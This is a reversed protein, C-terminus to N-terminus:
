AMNEKCSIEEVVLKMVGTVEVMKDPFEWHDKGTNQMMIAKLAERKEAMDEVFCIKGSGIVSQFHATYGCAVEKGVIEMNTDLEFGAYGTERILEAKRGEKAGHFYFIRKGDQETYGFNVPVIYVKGADHFGLRCCGCSLIIERIKNSDTVERDKRRM